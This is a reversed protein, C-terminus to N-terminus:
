QTDIGEMININGILLQVVRDDQSIRVGVSYAGPCLGSMQTASFDWQFTGAQPLAISGDDTSATLVPRRNENSVTLTIRCATIDIDDGSENDVLEVAETWNARNSATTLYGTYM